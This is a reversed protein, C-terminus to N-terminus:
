VINNGSNLSKDNKNTPLILLFEYKSEIQNYSYLTQVTRLNAEFLKNENIFM